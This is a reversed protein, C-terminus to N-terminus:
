PLNAWPWEPLGLVSLDLTLLPPGVADVSSQRCRQPGWAGKSTLWTEASPDQHARM